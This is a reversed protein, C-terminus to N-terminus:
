VTQDFPNYLTPEGGKVFVFGSPIPQKATQQHAMAPSILHKNDDLFKSWQGVHQFNAHGNDDFLKYTQEYQGWITELRNRDTIGISKMYSVFGNKQITRQSVAKYAAVIKKFAEYSITSKAKSNIITNMITRSGQGIHTMGEFKDLVFKSTSQLLQQGSPTLAMVNGKLAGFQSSGAKGLGGMQQTDVLIKNAAKVDGAVGDLYDSDKKAENQDYAKKYVEPQTGSQIQAKTQAKAIATEVATKGKMEELMLKQQFPQTALSHARDIATQAKQDYQKPIDEPSAGSDILHQRFGSWGQALQDPPTGKLEALRSMVYGHVNKDQLLRQAALQHAQMRLQNEIMQPEAKLQLGAQQIQLNRLQQQQQEGVMQQRKQMFQQVVGAGHEVGALAAGFPTQGAAAAEQMAAQTPFAAFNVM